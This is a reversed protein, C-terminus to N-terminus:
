FAKKTEPIIQITNYIHLPELSLFEPFVTDSKIDYLYNSNRRRVIYNKDPLAKFLYLRIVM